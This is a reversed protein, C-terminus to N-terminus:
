VVSGGLNESVRGVAHETPSRPTPDREFQGVAELLSRLPCHPTAHTAAVPSRLRGWDLELLLLIRIASERPPRARQPLEGRRPGTM